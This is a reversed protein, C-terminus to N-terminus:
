LGFHKLIIEKHGPFLEEVFFYQSLPKGNKDLDKKSDKLSKILKSHKVDGLWYGTKYRPIYVFFAYMESKLNKKILTKTDADFDVWKVDYSYGNLKYDWGGDTKIKDDKSHAPNKEFTPNLSHLEEFFLECIKGRFVDFKVEMENRGNKMYNHFTRNAIDYAKRYMDDKLKIFVM